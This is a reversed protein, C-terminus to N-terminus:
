LFSLSSASSLRIKSLKELATKEQQTSTFELDDTPNSTALKLQEQKEKWTMIKHYTLVSKVYNVPEWGRAFGYTAKEAFAPKGLLPFHKAVDDWKNPNGKMRKTLARADNLHGIGQNYAALAMYLRDDGEISEPLNDLLYRLLKAGGAISQKPDELNKVGMEKATITNLMMFGRVGTPSQANPIWQSEQYGIAALLQWDLNYQDAAAKLTNEWRPLRKALRESFMVADLNTVDIPQPELFATAIEKLKGNAKIRAIYNQAAEYLSKDRSDVLGWALPEPKHIEFAVQAHPYSYRYIDYITSDVVAYDAHGREIMDLLDTMEANEVMEWQIDKHTEQLKQLNLIASSKTVVFVTKGKLDQLSNPLTENSNGILELGVDLFSQTYTFKDKIGATTVASPSVLDFRPEDEALLENAREEDALILKVGLERAFGQLLTYEFGTTGENGQYHSILSNRSVVRLEGSTRIQELKSAPASRVLLAALALLTLAILGKAFSLRKVVATRKRGDMMSYSAM